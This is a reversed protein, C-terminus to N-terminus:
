KRKGRKKSELGSSMCSGFDGKRGLAGNRLDAHCDKAVRQFKKQHATLKKAM